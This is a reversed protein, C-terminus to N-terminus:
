PQKPEPEDLSFLSRILHLKGAIDQATDSSKLQQMPEHLIKNILRDALKELLKFEAETIKGRLRALEEQKILAFKEQLRRITPVVQLSQHWQEFRILEEAIISQVKPLEARRKELNKGVIINLDDIDKLFVNYLSAAAADVNRPLGIDLVLLQKSHRVRMAAELEAASILIGTEAVATIIIDFEALHSRFSEFPLMHATFATDAGHESALMDLLSQARLATRNTISIKRAGKELLHIAALEATEGAGVILIHKSALDSFIKRALEVAAYSVTVAGDSLETETRVRKGVSFATHCLHNLVTGTAGAEAALRYADKVQGLIQADGLLQSDASAAVEFLHKAAGCAFLSFFHTKEIERRALKYNILYDKFYDADAEQLAPVIFLETRNCTSMVFAESAIGSEKLDTLLAKAEAASLTLRERIDIPATKHNVGVAIM